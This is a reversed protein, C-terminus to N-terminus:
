AKEITVYINTKSQVPGKSVIRFKQGRPLEDIVEFDYKRSGIGMLIDAAVSEVSEGPWKDVDLDEGGGKISVSFNMLKQEAEYFMAASMRWDADMGRAKSLQQVAYQLNEEYQKWADTMEPTPRQVNAVRYARHLLELANAWKQELDNAGDRINKQIDKFKDLPISSMDNAETLTTINLDKLFKM